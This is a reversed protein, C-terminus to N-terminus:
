APAFTYEGSDTREYLVYMDGHRKGMLESREIDGLDSSRLFFCNVRSFLVIGSEGSERKEDLFQPISFINANLNGVVIVNPFGPFSTQGLTPLATGDALHPTLGTPVPRLETGPPPTSCLHNPAGTDVVWYDSVVEPEGEGQKRPSAEPSGSMM